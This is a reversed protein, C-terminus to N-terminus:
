KKLDGKIIKVNINENKRILEIIDYNSLNDNKHIYDNAHKVAAFGKDLPAMPYLSKLHAETRKLASSLNLIKNKVNNSFIYESNDVFQNYRNIEDNIRRSAIKEYKNVTGSKMMNIRNLIRLPLRAATDNVFFMLDDVALPSVMEAAATPTPARLDAVFDAITFDTEHGVASIVPKTSNYVADAVIETNYSWLDEISGGGRGIIIIEVPTKQLENIADVIDEAAGEGQVLTPRFYIEAFPLRRKLTSLIDQVAAGTPSTSVGIAMPIRPLVRKRDDNFYGKESLKAKLAEFAMYLDGEGLPKLDDCDMQYNGQPPYVTLRGLAIVQMGDRPQFKLNKGRWLVCKLQAKEDKLTFYRHGSSHHKFNSIEGQVLLNSFDNELVGRIKNTLVSVSLASKTNYQMISLKM